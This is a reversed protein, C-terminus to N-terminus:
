EGRVWTYACCKGEGHRGCLNRWGWAEPWTGLGWVKGMCPFHTAYSSCLLCSSGLFYDSLLTWVLLQLLLVCGQAQFLKLETTFFRPTNGQGTKCATGMFIIFSVCPWLWLPASFQQSPCIHLHGRPPATSYMENWLASDALHLSATLTQKNHQKM